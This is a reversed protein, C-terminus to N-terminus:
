KRIDMVNIKQIPLFGFQYLDVANVVAERPMPCAHM